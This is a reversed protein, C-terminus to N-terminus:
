LKPSRHLHIKENKLTLTSTQPKLNLVPTQPLPFKYNFIYFRFHTKNPSEFISIM